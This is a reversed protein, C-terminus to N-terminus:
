LLSVAHKQLLNEPITYPTKASFRSTFSGSDHYVSNDNVAFDNRVDFQARRRASLIDDVEAYRMLPPAFSEEERADCPIFEYLKKVLIGVLPFTEDEVSPEFLPFISSRVARLFLM